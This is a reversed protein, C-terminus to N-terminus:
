QVECASYEWSDCSCTGDATCTCNVGEYLPACDIRAVCAPEDGLESCAPPPVDGPEDMCSEFNGVQTPDFFGTACDAQSGGTCGPGPYHRAICNDHRSCQYADLGSCDGAVPGSPAVAWCEFYTYETSDCDLGEPCNSVQAARCGVTDMCTQQDLGTCYSTCLGWDQPARPAGEAPGGGWDGCTTGGTGGLGGSGGWSECLGTDPNRSGESRQPAEDSAGGYDCESRYIDCAGASALLPLVAFCALLRSSSRTNM